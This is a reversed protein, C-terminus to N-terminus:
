VRVLVQRQRCVTLRTEALPSYLLAHEGSSTKEQTHETQQKMKNTMYIRWFKQIEIVM